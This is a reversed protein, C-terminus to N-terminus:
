SGLRARLWHVAQAHSPCPTPMDQALPTRAKAVFQGNGPTRPGWAERNGIVGRMRRCCRGTGDQGVEPERNSVMEISPEKPGIEGYNRGVCAPSVGSICRLLVTSLISSGKAYAIKTGMSVDAGNGSVVGIREGWDTLPLSNKRLSKPHCMSIPQFWKRYSNRPL